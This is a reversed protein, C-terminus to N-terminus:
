IATPVGTSEEKGQLAESDCWLNRRTGVMGGATILTHRTSAWRSTHSSCTGLAVFGKHIECGGHTQCGLALLQSWSKLVSCDPPALHCWSTSGLLQLAPLDLVAGPPPSPPRCATRSGRLVASALCAPSRGTAQGHCRPKAAEWPCLCHPSLTQLGNGAGKAHLMRRQRCRPLLLPQPAPSPQARDRSSEKAEAWRGATGTHEQEGDFLSGAFSLGTIEQLCVAPLSEPSSRSWAPWKCGFAERNLSQPDM